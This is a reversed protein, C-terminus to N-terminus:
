MREAEDKIPNLLGEIQKIETVLQTNNNVTDTNLMQEKQKRQEEIERLRSQKRDKMREELKQTQQQGELALDADLKKVKRNYDALM